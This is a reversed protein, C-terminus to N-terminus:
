PLITHACSADKPLITASKTLELMECTDVFKKMSPFSSTTQRSFLLLTKSSRGARGLRLHVLGSSHDTCLVGFGEMGKLTNRFVAKKRDKRLLLTHSQCGQSRNFALVVKLQGTKHVRVMCAGLKRKDRSPLFGPANSAIALIYWFGAFQPGAWWWLGCSGVGPRPPCTGLQDPGLCCLAPGHANRTLQSRVHDEQPGM